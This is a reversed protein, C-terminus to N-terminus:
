AARTSQDRLQRFDLGLGDLHHAPDARYIPLSYVNEDVLAEAKPVISARHQGLQAQTERGPLLVQGLM